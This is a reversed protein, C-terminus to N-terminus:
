GARTVGLRGGPTRDRRVVPLSTRASTAASMGRARSSRQARVSLPRTAV